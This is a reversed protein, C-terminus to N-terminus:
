GVSSLLRAKLDGSVGGGARYALRKYAPRKNTPSVPPMNGTLIDTLWDPAKEALEDIRATIQALIDDSQDTDNVRPERDTISGHNIQASRNAARSEILDHDGLIRKTKKTNNKTKM